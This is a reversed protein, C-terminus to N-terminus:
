VRYVLVPIVVVKSFAIVPDVPAKWKNDSITKLEAKIQSLRQKYGDQLDEDSKSMEDTIKNRELILEVGRERATDNTIYTPLSNKAALAIELNQMLEAGQQQTISGTNVLTAVNNKLSEQSVDGKVVSKALNKYESKKSSTLSKVGPVFGGFVGGIIGAEALQMLGEEMTPLEFGQEGLEADTLLLNFAKKTGFEAGTQAMETLAEPGAGQLFSMSARLGKNMVEKLIQEKTAGSEVMSRITSLVQKKVSANGFAKAVGKFGFAELAASASGYVTAYLQAELESFGSKRAEDLSDGYTLTFGMYAAGAPGGLAGGAFVAGM